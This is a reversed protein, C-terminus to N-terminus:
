LGKLEIEMIVKIGSINVGKEEMLYHVYKLVRLQSHSYCRTKKGIRKPQVIGMEDLKRLTWIPIDVMEAAISIVFVAEEPDITVEFNKSKKPVIAKM